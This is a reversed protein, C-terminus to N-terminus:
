INKVSYDSRAGRGANCVQYSKMKVFQAIVSWDNKKEWIYM